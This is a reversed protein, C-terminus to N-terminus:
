KALAIMKTECDRVVKSSGTIKGALWEMRDKWLGERPVEKFARVEEEWKQIRGNEFAIIGMLSEKEMVRFIERDDVMQKFAKGFLPKAPLVGIIVGDVRVLRVLEVNEMNQLIKITDKKFMPLLFIDQYPVFNEKNDEKANSILKIMQWAQSVNFGYDKTSTLFVQALQEIAQQTLGEIAEKPSDGSKIRRVFMQLDRMRGGLMSTYLQLDSGFEKEKFDNSLAHQVYINSAEFSANSLMVRKLPSTPLSSVLEQISGVDDTIFIVHAINLQVLNSAWEALQKYIFANEQNKKRAAQFRDIVIVAKKNPNQQLYDEEKMHFGETDLLKRYDTLALDRISAISLNLMAQIQTEKSESLGASQGTLSKVFLDVFSSISTLFGFVPFYGIEHAMNQIVQYDKRSKIVNECDVVLVNPRDGLILNNVLNRKGSGPPGQIVILSNVNEELWIKVEKAIKNREEMLDEIGKWLEWDGADSNLNLMGKVKNKTTIYGKWLGGLLQNKNWDFEGKIKEQIFWSRIPDFVLIAFSAILAMIMPISIRPHDRIFVVLPNESVKRMYHIHVSVGDEGIECGTLCHRACIASNLYWYTVVTFGNDLRIDAIKGYRRFMAYISEQSLDGNHKIKLSRVPYRGLDEIWPIGKVAWIETKIVRHMGKIKAQLNYMISKNYLQKTTAAPMKFTVFAGGDRPVAVIDSDQLDYNSCLKKVWETVSEKTTPFFFPTIFQKPDWKSLKPMCIQSIYLTTTKETPIIFGTTHVSADEGSETSKIVSAETVSKLVQNPIPNANISSNTTSSFRVGNYIKFRTSYSLGLRLNSIM